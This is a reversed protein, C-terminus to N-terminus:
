YGAKFNWLVMLDNALIMIILILAQKKRNESLIGVFERVAANPWFYWKTKAGLGVAKMGARRAMMGGRFVHYNTTSYAVNADPDVASIKAASFKMNEYTSTSQDEEIIRDEPVGQELLYQKMCASESIVENPGQGGSTVFVVEKGTSEKQTRAFELARDIRGRLLPTPTGDKRIGCGLIIIFDKDMGPQYRTAFRSVVTAGLLMCEFYLFVSCYVNVILEHIMVYLESGMVYYDVRYLLVVGGIMIFSLLIGLMNVVRKGEHRILSVNSICLIIAYVLLVPSSFLIYTEAVNSFYGLSGQVIGQDIYNKMNALSLLSIVEVSLFFLLFGIYYISNYSYPEYRMQLVFARILLVCLIGLWICAIARMLIMGQATRQRSCLAIGAIAAASVIFILYLTPKKESSYFHFM